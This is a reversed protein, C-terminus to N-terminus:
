HVIRVTIDHLHIFDCIKSNILMSNQLVPTLLLEQNNYDLAIILYVM